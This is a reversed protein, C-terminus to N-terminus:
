SQPRTQSGTIEIFNGPSASAILHPSYKSFCQKLKFNDMYTVKDAHIVKNGSSTFNLIYDINPEGAGSGGQRDPSRRLEVPIRGLQYSTLGSLVRWIELLYLSVEALWIGGSLNAELALPLYFCPSNQTWLPFVFTISEQLWHHYMHLPVLSSPWHGTHSLAACGKSTTM